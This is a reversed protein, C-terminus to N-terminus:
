VLVLSAKIDNFYTRGIPVKSGDKLTLELQNFSNIHHRNVLYSKHVRIFPHKDPLKAEFEKLNKRLAVRKEGIKLEVYNGNAKVLQLDHLAVSHKYKGMPLFLNNTSRNKIHGEAMEITVFLDQKSFPKILYGYPKTQKAAEIYIGETHSSIFIVPVQMKHLETALDIGNKKGNISIDILFLDPREKKALQMGAEYSDAIACVTYGLEELMEKLDIAIIFEDEIIVIRLTQM